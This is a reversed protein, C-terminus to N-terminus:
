YLQQQQQIMLVFAVDDNKTDKFGYEAVCFRSLSLAIQRM